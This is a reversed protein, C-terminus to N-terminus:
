FGFKGSAQKNAPLEEGCMVCQRQGSRGIKTPGKHQCKTEIMLPAAVPATQVHICNGRDHGKMDCFTCFKDEDYEEDNEEPAAATFVVSVPAAEMTLKAYRVWDICSQRVAASIDIPDGSLLAIIYDPPTWQEPEPMDNGVAEAALEMWQLMKTLDAEDHVSEQLTARIRGALTTM